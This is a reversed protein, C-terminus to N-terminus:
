GPPLGGLARDLDTAPHCLVQSFAARWTLVNLQQVAMSPVRQDEEPDTTFMVALRRGLPLYFHGAGGLALHSRAGVRFVRRDFYVCPSDGLIFDVGRTAPTLAQVHLSSLKELAKNYANVMREAAYAGGMMFYRDFHDLIFEEAEGPAPDRGHDRRWAAILEPKKAFEVAAPFRFDGAVRKYMAEFGYSRAFHLAALVTAEARSTPQEHGALWSRIAPLADSELRRWESELHDLRQGDVVYSSFHERVFVDRTGAPRVRPRGPPQLKDCLLVVEGDAFFRQFGRSVIHHRHRGMRAVVM